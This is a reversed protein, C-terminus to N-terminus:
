LSFVPSLEHSFGGPIYYACVHFHRELKVIYAQVTIRHALNVIDTQVKRHLLNIYIIVLSKATQVDENWIKPCPTTEDNFSYQHTIAYLM